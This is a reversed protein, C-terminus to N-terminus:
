QVDDFGVNFATIWDFSKNLIVSDNFVSFGTPPPTPLLLRVMLLLWLGHRWAPSLRKRFLWQAVLILGALVAAQWSTQLLWEFWANGMEIFLNM